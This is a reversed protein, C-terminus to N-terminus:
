QYIEKSFSLSSAQGHGNAEFLSLLGAGHADIGTGLEIIEQVKQRGMLTRDIAFMEFCGVMEEFDFTMNEDADLESYFKVFLLHIERESFTSTLFVM